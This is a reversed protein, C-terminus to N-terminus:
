LKKYIVKRTIIFLVCASLVIIGGLLFVTSYTSALGSEIGFPSFESFANSAMLSGFLSVGVSGTIAQILDNFGLVRGSEEPEVTLTATDVIPSYFFSTGFYYICPAIALTLVKGHPIMWAVVILGGGMCILALIIAATRGIKQIIPGAVFATVAALLVSWVLLNSVESSEIGYVNIGIANIGANITYSFFYGLFIVIMTYIFAKNKFFDPTIFPDKAKSIYLSFSILSLITMVSWFIGMNTFFMTISGALCGILIFGIYDINTGKVSQDPLNRYLYPILLVCIVPALFLLKWDILTVYGALWVGLAAAFRFVVVFISYYNVRKEKEIYKSVLVLFASGTAQWGASQIVRGLIVFWINIPGFLFGVISGLVFFLTGLVTMKRLSIFDGLSAYIVCVIGLVIGPLSTILPSLSEQGLSQGINVFVMGFAQQELVGFTFIFLIAPIVSKAMKNLRKFEETGEKPVPVGITRSEEAM